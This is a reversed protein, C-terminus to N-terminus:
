AALTVALSNRRNEGYVKPLIRTDTFTGMADALDGTGGCDPCPGDPTDAGDPTPMTWVTEDIVCRGDAVQALPAFSPLPNDPDLRTLALNRNTLAEMTRRWRKTAPHDADATPNLAHLMSLTVIQKLANLRDTALFPAGDSTVNNVYGDKVYSRYRSSQACRLCAQSVGPAAFGIEIGRGGQYVSAALVPVGFHLGLRQVRDQAPFNDTFACLLTVAPIVAPGGPLPERLLRHFGADDIDSDKAQITWVRCNPNLRVLKDALAEVKPRGIDIPDVAQTGVNKPEIIDPDILIFQDVGCRAMTELFGVSGGTGVAVVRSSAMVAPDYADAVRELFPSPNPTQHWSGYDIVTAPAAIVGVTHGDNRFGDRGGIGADSKRVAVFGNLAFAGTDPLTQVIPMAMRDLKPLARLIREAYVKDGMSPRGYGGPHSHAFGMFDIGEDEWQRIVKNAVSIDPSYTARSVTASHDLHVRTIVGYRRSGGLMAGTEAPRQGITDKIQDYADRTIALSSGIRAPDLRTVRNRTIPEDAAQANPPPAQRQNILPLAKLNRIFYPVNFDFM